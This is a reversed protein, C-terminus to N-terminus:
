FGVQAGIGFLYVDGGDTIDFAGVINVDSMAAYEFGLGAYLETSSATASASGGVGSASAKGKLFALGLRGVGTFDTTLPFRMAAGVSIGHYKVEGSGGAGTLTVKGYNTYALEASVNDSVNYGGYLKFATDTDDCSVTPVCDTNLKSMGILAGAYGQAAAVGCVATLAAALLVKKMIASEEFLDAVSQGFPSLRAHRM